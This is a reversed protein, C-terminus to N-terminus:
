SARRRETAVYRVIADFTGDMQKMVEDPIKIRFEDEIEFLLEALDLNPDSECVDDDSRVGNWCDGLQEVCVKRVRIPIDEPIGSGGFHADYFDQDDLQRRSVLEREFRSRFVNSLLAVIRRM